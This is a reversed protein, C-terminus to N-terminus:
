NDKEFSAALLYKFTDNSNTYEHNKYTLESSIVHRLENVLVRIYSAMHNPLHYLIPKNDRQDKYLKEIVTLRANETTNYKRIVWNPLTISDLLTLVCSVYINLWECSNRKHPIKSLYQKIISCIDGINFPYNITDFLSSNDSIYDELIFSDTSLIDLSINDSNYEKEYDVKYLYLMKKMYNLISKIQPLQPNGKDDFRFQKPNILRLFFRSACYLSFSDYELATKYYGYKHSLMNTLHYLYEYLTNEDYSSQYVNNDIWMAMTTYQIDPKKYTM